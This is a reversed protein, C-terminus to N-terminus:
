CSSPVKLSGDTSLGQISAWTDLKLASAVGLGKINIVPGNAISSFQPENAPAQTGGENEPSSVAPDDSQDWGLPRLENLAPDIFLDELTEFIVKAGDNAPSHKIQFGKSVIGPKNGQTKKAEFM